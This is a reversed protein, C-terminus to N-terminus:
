KKLSFFSAKLIRQRVNNLFFRHTLDINAIALAPADSNGCVATARPHLASASLGRFRRESFPFPFEARARPGTEAFIWATMVAIGAPERKKKGAVSLIGTQM